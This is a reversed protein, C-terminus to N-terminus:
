GGRRVEEVEEVPQYRSLSVGVSWSKSCLACVYAFRTSFNKFRHAVFTTMPKILGAATANTSNLGTNNTSTRRTSIPTTIPHPNSSEPTPSTSLKRKMPFPRRKQSIPMALTQAYEPKQNRKKRADLMDNLVLEDYDGGQFSSHMGRVIRREVM